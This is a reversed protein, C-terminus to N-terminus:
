KRKDLGPVRLGAATRMKRPALAMVDESRADAVHSYANTASAMAAFTGTSRVPDYQAMNKAAVGMQQGVAWADPQAGLFVFTWNGEDEKQKILAQIGSLNWERSSNEEGDTMIVTLIKEADPKNRDVNRVTCGIADYLATGGDPIYNKTSLEPIKAIPEAVYRNQIVTDFLTLSFLYDIGAEKKLASIYTNFGGITDNLVSAM